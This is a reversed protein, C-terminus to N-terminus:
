AGRLPPARTARGPATAELVARPFGEGGAVLRMRGGIALEERAVTSLVVIDAASLWDSPESDWGAFRVREPGAVRRAPSRAYDADPRDGVSVVPAQPAP